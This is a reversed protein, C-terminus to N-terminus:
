AAFGSRTQAPRPPRQQRSCRQRPQPQQNVTALEHWQMQGLACRRVDALMRELNSVRPFIHARYAIRRSKVQGSDIAAQIVQRQLGRFSGHEIYYNLAGRFWDPIKNLVSWYLEREENTLGTSQKAKALHLGRSSSVRRMGKSNYKGERRKCDICRRKIATRVTGRFKAASGETFSHVVENAALWAEGRVELAMDSRTIEELVIRSRADM